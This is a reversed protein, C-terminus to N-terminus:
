MERQRPFATSMVLSWSLPYSQPSVGWDNRRKNAQVYLIESAHGMMTLFLKEGVTKLSKFTGRM